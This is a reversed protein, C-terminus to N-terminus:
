LNYTPLTSPALWFLYCSVREVAADEEGPEYSECFVSRRRSGMNNRYSPPPELDEDDDSDSPHPLFPSYHSSIRNCFFCFMAQLKLLLYYTAYRLVHVSNRM